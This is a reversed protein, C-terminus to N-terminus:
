YKQQKVTYLVLDAINGLIVNVVGNIHDTRHKLGEM